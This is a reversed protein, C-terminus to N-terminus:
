TSCDYIWILIDWKAATSLALDIVIQKASKSSSKKEEIKPFSAIQIILTRTGNEWM